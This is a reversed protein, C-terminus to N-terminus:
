ICTSQLLYRCQLEPLNITKLELVSDDLALTLETCALIYHDIELQSLEIIVENAMKINSSNFYVQRLKDINDQIKEPLSIIEVNPLLSSIYNHNMTYKTGLIALKEKSNKTEIKLNNEISIFYKTSFSFYKVAEHLTINALIYPKKHTEMEMFYPQLLQAAAEMQYPLLANISEFNVQFTDYQFTPHLNILGNLTQIYWDGANKGTLIVTPKHMPVLYFSPM